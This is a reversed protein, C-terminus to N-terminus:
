KEGLSETFVKTIPKILYNFVTRQKTKIDVQSTMGPIINLTKGVSTTTAGSPIKIHAIYFNEKGKATTEQISDGSVYLVEGSVSGFISSDFADFRVTAQLGQRVDAIDRPQIQTEIIQADDVPIIEMLSEGPKLVAGITTVTVNKVLGSMAARLETGALVENRQVLVQLNQALEDEAKALEAQSQEMYQQNRSNLKSEADLVARQAKMLEVTDVDGTKHLSELLALEKKALRLSQTNTRNDEQIGKVRQTYLRREIEVIQSEQSVEAPFALAVGTVESRLRAIKAKLALTRSRVENSSAAFRTTKLKAVMDGKNVTDGERVLLEALVGGDVSQIQQVRNSMIVKGTGRVFQDIEFVTSWAILLFFGISITWIIASSTALGDGEPGPKDSTMERARPTPATSHGLSALTQTNAATLM